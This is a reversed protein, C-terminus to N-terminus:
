MLPLRITFTTGIGLETEFVITGANKKVINAYAIPLGQGTGKGLEKTTFFPEFIKGRHAEPIGTGTDRISVRVHKDEKRTQITITGKAGPSSKIVDGIAHAANVILNLVAQNFENVFCRVPPLDAALDFVVDAVYKWENRAVTVTTDIAKNIDAPAKEKHGPHSFDKMAAVLKAVRGLGELTESIALPVQELVYDLDVSKLSEQAVRILEPTLTDAGAAAVFERYDSLASTVGALSDQLFKINDGAFQTPTNIEHAIGAALQGIAEMKQAQRLQLEMVKREAEAKKRETIDRAVLSLYGSDPPDSRHALIQKSVAVRQGARNTFTSEGVWAGEKKAEEMREAATAAPAANGLFENLFLLSIDEAEGLGLMRRGAANLYLFRGTDFETIAVLDQTASLLELLRKENEKALAHLSTQRELRASVARVLAQAEFPKALYDDAGKDMSVRVDTAADGTMLIVPIAATAPQSRLSELVKFGDMGEMNLDSLVLDPLHSRAMELGNEGDPAEVINFKKSLIARVSIRVAKDDDIVLITKM